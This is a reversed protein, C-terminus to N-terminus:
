LRSRRAAEPSVPKARREFMEKAARSMRLLDKVSEPVEELSKILDAFYKKGQLKTKQFSAGSEM